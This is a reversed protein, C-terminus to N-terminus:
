MLFVIIKQRHSVPFSMAEELLGLKEFCDISSLQGVMIELSTAVLAM